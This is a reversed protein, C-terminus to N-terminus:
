DCRNLIQAYRIGYQRCGGGCCRGNEGPSRSSVCLRSQGRAFWEPEFYLRPEHKSRPSVITTRPRKNEHVHDIAAILNSVAGKGNEDLMRLSVLKCQPAMGGIGDLQTQQHEIDESDKKLYRSVAVPRKETVPANATVPWEGAIIGAVHTGHGNQDDFPDDGDVTFDKHWGSAPDVNTHKSFHPHDHQIGSDM